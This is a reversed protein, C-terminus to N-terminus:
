DEVERTVLTNPMSRLGLDILRKSFPDEAVNLNAAVCKKREKMAEADEEARKAVPWAEPPRLLWEPGQLWERKKLEAVDCGRTLVDAPNLAGPVWRWAEVDSLARIETVRNGVFTKWPERKKVWCLVVSSDTWFHSKVPRPFSEAIAAYLRAAICAGLLEMRPITLPQVPGVRAKAVVFCQAPREGGVRLFICAAYAVASADCFIHVSLEEADKYGIWRPITCHKLERAAACWETVKRAMEQPLEEDWELGMKWAEQIILKPVLLVAAVMGLPDYIANVVSLLSRKTIGDELCKEVAGHDIRLTDKAVDWKLGLVNEMQTDVERIKDSNSMWDRLVFHRTGLIRTAQEKFRVLEEESDCSALCNDVYFGKRLKALTQVYEPTHEDTLLKDIACNLLFPSSAVGFVVRCHRYVAISDGEWWLFRMVDRDKEDLELMLFAQKIDATVGFQEMRFNQLIPLILPILNPGKNLCQNLSARGKNAASADFVPRLKTTRSQPKWVGHHPLYHVPHEAGVKGEVKEIIGESAWGKLVDNYAQFMGQQELRRTTSRLRAESLARNTELPPHGGKWPLSVVFRGQDNVYTTNEFHLIADSDDPSTSEPPAIGLIDLDWLNRVKPAACINLCSEVRRAVAQGVGQIVWGLHTETAVAGSPLLEMRGTLLRPIMDSGLILDIEAEPATDTLEIGVQRLESIIAGDTVGGIDGCLREQDIVSVSHAENSVLHLLTLDYVHHHMRKTEFGGFLGHILYVDDVPILGLESALKKRIYSKQSGDDLFIRVDRMAGKVKIRARLTKMFVTDGTSKSYCAQTKVGTTPAARTAGGSPGARVDKGVLPSDRPGGGDREADCIVAYHRRGCQTCSVNKRCQSAQHGRQLCNFCARKSKVLERREVIPMKLVKRCELAKHNVMDCFICSVPASHLAAATRQTAVEGTNKVSTEKVKTREKLADVHDKNEVLRELFNMLNSVKNISTESTQSVDDALSGNDEGQQNQNQMLWLELVDQPLCKELLPFLFLQYNASGVGLATLTRIQAGLIDVLESLNSNRDSNVINLLERVAADIVLEDKGFRRRLHEVLNTYNEPFPPYSQALKYARTGPKLCRLLFQFKDVVPTQADEHIVKYQGWFATWNKPSLDYEIPQLQNFRFSRMSPQSATTARTPQFVLAREARILFQECEEVEEAMADEEVDLKEQIMSDVKRLREMREGLGVIAAIKAADDTGAEFADCAALIVKRLGLRQGRLRKLEKAMLGTVTAM